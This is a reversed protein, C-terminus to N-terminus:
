VVVVRNLFLDPDAAESGNKESGALPHSGVFPMQMPFRDALAIEARRVIEAKTSGADTIVSGDPIHRGAEAVHGGITGVPTCVVILDGDQVGSAIRTTTETVCGRALADELSSARRGIGIIRRALKRKRLALGISGGILGV